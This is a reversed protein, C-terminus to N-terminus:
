DNKESFFKKNGFNVYVLNAYLPLSTLFSFWFSYVAKEYNLDFIKVHYGYAFGFVNVNYLLGSVIFIRISHLNRSYTSYMMLILIAIISINYIYLFESELGIPLWRISHFLFPTLLMACLINPEQYCVYFVLFSVAHHAFREFRIFFIGSIIMELLYLLSKAFLYTYFQKIFISSRDNSAPAPLFRRNKLCYFWAFFIQVIWIMNFGNKMAFFHAENININAFLSGFAGKM